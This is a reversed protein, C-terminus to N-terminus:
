LLTRALLYAGHAPSHEAAVLRMEPLRALLHTRLPELMVESRLIGGVM